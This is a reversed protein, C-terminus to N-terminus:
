NRQRKRSAFLGAGSIMALLGLISTSEEGTHPLLESPTKNENNGKESEVKNLPVLGNLTKTEPDYELQKPEFSDKKPNLSELYVKSEELAKNYISQQKSKLENLENNLQVKLENLIQKSREDYHELEDKHKALLQVRGKERSTKLDNLAKNQTSILEELEQVQSAKLANLKKVEDAKFLELAQKHRAQREEETEDHLSALKEQRLKQANYVATSFATNAAATKEEYEKNINLITKDYKDHADKIAKDHINQYNKIANEHNTVVNQYEDNIRLLEKELQETAANSEKIFTEKADEVAKKADKIAQNDNSNLRAQRNKEFTPEMNDSRDKLSPYHEEGISNYGAIDHFMLIYPMEEHEDSTNYQAAFELNDTNCLIDRHGWNSVGDWYLMRTMDNLIAVKLGTMTVPRRVFTPEYYSGLCEAPFRWGRANSLKVLEPVTEVTTHTMSLKKDTRLNALEVTFKQAAENWVIPTMGQSKRWNNLLTFAYDALEKQQEDTLKGHVVESNDQDLLSSYPLHGITMLMSKPVKPDIITSPLNDESRIVWPADVNKTKYVGLEDKEWDTYPQAIRVEKNEKKNQKLLDALKNEVRTVKDQANQVAKDYNKRAVTEASAKDKMAQSLNTNKINELSKNANDIVHQLDENAQKTKELKDNQANTIASNLKASADRTSSQFEEDIAREKDKSSYAPESNLEKEKNVVDEASKTEALKYDNDQKTKLSQENQENNKALEAVSSQTEKDYAFLEETQKNPLEEGYTKLEATKDAVVKENADQKNALEEKQSELLENLKKTEEQKANEIKQLEPSLQQKEVEPQVLEAHVSHNVTPVVAAAAAITSIAIKKTKNSM